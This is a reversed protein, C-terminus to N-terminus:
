DFLLDRSPFSDLSEKQQIEKGDSVKNSEEHSGYFDIARSTSDEYFEEMRSLPETKRIKKTKKSQKTSM